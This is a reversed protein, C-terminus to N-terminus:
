TFVDGVFEQGCYVCRNGKSSSVRNCAPCRLPVATVVGDELSDRLDIELIKADLDAGTLNLRDRVLEWIAANLIELRAFKKEVEKIQSRLAFDLRPTSPTFESNSDLM